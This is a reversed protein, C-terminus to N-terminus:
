SSQQTAVLPEPDELSTHHRRRKLHPEYINNNDSEIISTQQQPESHNRAVLFLNSNELKRKLRQADNSTSFPSRRNLLSSTESFLIIFSFLCFLSCVSEKRYNMNNKKRKVRIHSIIKFLGSSTLHTLDIDGEIFHAKGVKAAAYSFFFLISIINLVIFVIM